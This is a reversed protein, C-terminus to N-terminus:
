HRNAMHFLPQLSSLMTAGQKYHKRIKLYTKSVNKKKTEWFDLLCATIRASTVSAALVDSFFAVPLLLGVQTSTKISIRSLTSFMALWECQLRLTVMLSIRLLVVVFRTFLNSNAAVVFFCAHQGEHIVSESLMADPTSLIILNFSCVCKENKLKEMISLLILRLDTLLRKM